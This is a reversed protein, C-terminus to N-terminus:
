GIISSTLAGSVVLGLAGGALVDSPYHHACAIRSWAMALWLLLAFPLFAPAAVVFPVMAATLTMVHGSPFSHRDLTALPSVLDARLEFPRPRGCALKLWPYILHCILIGTGSLAVLQVKGDTGALLIGAVLLYAVGNGLWSILMAARRVSPHKTGRWLWGVTAMERESLHLLRTRLPHLRGAGELLSRADTLMQRSRALM